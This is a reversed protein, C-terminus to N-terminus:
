NVLLTKTIESTAIKILFLIFVGYCRNSGWISWFFLFASVFFCYYTRIPYFLSNKGSKKESSLGVIFLFGEFILSGLAMERAMFLLAMISAGASFGVVFGFCGVVFGFFGFFFGDISGFQSRLTTDLSILLLAMCSVGALGTFVLFGPLNVIEKVVKFQYYFNGLGGWYGCNGDVLQWKTKCIYRCKLGNM